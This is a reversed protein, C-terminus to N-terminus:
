EDSSFMPSSTVARLAAMVGGIGMLVWGQTETDMEVSQFFAQVGGLVTIALAVAATKYGKM